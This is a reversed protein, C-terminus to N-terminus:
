LGSIVCRRIMESAEDKSLGSETLPSQIDRLIRLQLPTASLTTRGSERRLLVQLQEGYILLKNEAYALAERLTGFFKPELETGEIQARVYWDDNEYRIVIEDGGPLALVFQAARREHWELVSQRLLKNNWQLDGRKRTKASVPRRPSSSTKVPTKQHSYAPSKPTLQCSDDRVNSMALKIENGGACKHVINGSEYALMRGSPLQRLVIMAGCRECGKFGETKMAREYGWWYYSISVRADEITSERDWQHSGFSSQSSKPGNWM